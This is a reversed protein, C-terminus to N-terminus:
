VIHIPYTGFEDAAEMMAKIQEIKTGLPIQCGTSLIYGKPADYGKAICSRVADFIQARTGRHIVDVPPINGTIVVRDGIQAKAEALDEINDISFNSIGAEVVDEWIAKSKGCIHIGVGKGTERKVTEINQKLYPLSFTRFQEPSILSMSSVPDAFGLSVGRKAAEQIYRDNSAAVIEMLKHVAEPHKRTWKLLQETGVLSSAVSFPGSLAASVDVYDNLRKYTLTIADLVTPLMGDRSPDCVRLRDIEAVSRIAPERTYAIGYEPFAIQAGMASAVGRLSTSISVNDQQLCEFLAVELEAMREASHYYERLSIGIYPAMTAGMDPVCLVRDIEEGRAFADVRERPTMKERKM